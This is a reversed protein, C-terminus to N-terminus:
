GVICIWITCWTPQHHDHAWGTATTPLVENISIRWFGGGWDHMGPWCWHTHLHTPSVLVAPFLLFSDKNTHTRWWGGAQRNKPLVGSGSTLLYTFGERTMNTLHLQLFSRRKVTTSYIRIYVLSLQQKEIAQKYRCTLKVDGVGRVCGRWRLGAM